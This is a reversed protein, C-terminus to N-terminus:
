TTLSIWVWITKVLMMTHLLCIKHYTLPLTLTVLKKLRHQNNRHEQFITINNDISQVLLRWEEKLLALKTKNQLIVKKGQNQFTPLYCKKLPSCVSKSDHLCEVASKNYLTQSNNHHSQLSTIASIIIIVKSEESNM